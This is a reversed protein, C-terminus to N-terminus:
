LGNKNYREEDESYLKRFNGYQRGNHQDTKAAVRDRLSDIPTLTLEFFQFPLVCGVFRSDQFVFNRGTMM